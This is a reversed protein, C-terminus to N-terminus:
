VSVFKTATSPVGFLWNLNRPQDVIFIYFNWANISQKLLEQFIWFNSSNNKKVFTLKNILNNKLYPYTPQSIQIALCLWFRGYLQLMKAIQNCNTSHLNWVNKTIKSKMKKSFMYQRKNSDLKYTARITITCSM